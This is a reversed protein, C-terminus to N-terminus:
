GTSSCFSTLMNCNQMSWTLISYKVSPSYCIRQDAQALACASRRGQRECAAFDSKERHQEYIFILFLYIFLSQIQKIVEYFTPIFGNRNFNNAIITTNTSLAPLMKFYKKKKNKLNIIKEM